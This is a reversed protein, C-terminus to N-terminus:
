LLCWWLWLKVTIRNWVNNKIARRIHPLFLAGTKLCRAGQIFLIHVKNLFNLVLLFHCWKRILSNHFHYPGPPDIRTWITALIMTIIENTGQGNPQWFREGPDNKHLYQHYLELVQINSPCIPKVVLKQPSNFFSSVNIIEENKLNKLHFMM